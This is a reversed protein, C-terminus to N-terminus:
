TEEDRATCVAGDRVWNVESVFHSVTSDAFSGCILSKTISRKLETEGRGGGGALGNM